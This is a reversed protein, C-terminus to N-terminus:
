RKKEKKYAEQLQHRKLLHNTGKARLSGSQTKSKQSM